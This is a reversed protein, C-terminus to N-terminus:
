CIPKKTAKIKLAAANDSMNFITKIHNEDFDSIKMLRM